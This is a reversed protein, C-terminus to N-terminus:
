GCAINLFGINEASFEAILLFDVAVGRSILFLDPLLLTMMYSQIPVVSSEQIIFLLLLIVKGIWNM